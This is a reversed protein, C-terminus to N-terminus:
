MINIKELVYGEESPVIIFNEEGTCLKEMQKNLNDVMDVVAPDGQQYLQGIEPPIKVILDRTGSFGEGSVYREFDDETYFRHGSPNRRAPFKGDEDWRVLTRESVNILEAFEKQKYIKM